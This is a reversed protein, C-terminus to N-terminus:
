STAGWSVSEYKRTTFNILLAVMFIAISVWVIYHWNTIRPTYNIFMFGRGQDILHFLPNWEFYPLIFGPIANAVMMKGSAFMNIRAYITNLVTAAQPSWPRIGLFVMGVCCGSLWALLFMGAVGQWHYITFQEFALYYFLFIVLSGLLQQYLASLASAAIMVAASLPEHKTLSKSVSYSSAIAGAAKIHTMYVFIGSMVFLLFDGRIPSTRMGILYYISMLVVVLALNQFIITFLGALANRSSTRLNYVTQHYILASITFAAGAMSTTKRREFM